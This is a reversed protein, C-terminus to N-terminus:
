GTLAPTHRDMWAIMEEFIAVAKTRDHERHHDRARRFRAEIEAVVDRHDVGGYAECMLKVRRAQEGVDVEPECVDACRWVAHGFDVLRPGPAVDEDWDIIAVAEDGDFVINHPGLDGHCVVEEDGALATGATADHFGRVLRAASVLPADSLRAPSQAVVEGPVFSVVERGQEDIGLWRPAGGFGVAELHRLVDRVHESRTHLPRRVTDGVRVVRPTQRGGSLTVQRFALAVGGAGDGGVRLRAAVEPDCQRLRRVEPRRRRLRAGRDRRPAARVSREARRLHPQPRSPKPARMGCRRSCYRQRSHKPRFSAGCLRCAREGVFAAKRGCHTDLTANCNPCVIRLNELRNDDSVGNVHDLILSMRRGHWEEGQGCLECRPQKLEAEYLRDKLRARNTFRGEVLLEELPTARTWTRELGALSALHPDFHETPISWIEVYKKLIVRSNGTCCMGLEGSQRQMAEPLLSRKALKNNPTALRCSCM